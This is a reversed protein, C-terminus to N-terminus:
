EEKVKIYNCYGGDLIIHENKDCFSEVSNLKAFYVCDSCHTNKEKYFDYRWIWEDMM